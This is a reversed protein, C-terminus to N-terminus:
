TAGGTTAGAATAVPVNGVIVACADAERADGDYAHADRDAGDAFADAAYRRTSEARARLADVARDRFAAVAAEVAARGEIAAVDPADGPAHIAVAAAIAEDRTPVGPALIEVVAIGRSFAWALVAGRPTAHWGRDDCTWRGGFRVGWELPPAELVGLCDDVVRWPADSAQGDPAAPPPRHPTM